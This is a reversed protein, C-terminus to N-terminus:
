KSVKRFIEYVITIFLSEISKSVSRVDTKNRLISMGVRSPQRDMDATVAMSPMVAGAMFALSLAARRLITFDRM